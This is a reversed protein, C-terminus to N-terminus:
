WVPYFLCKPVCIPPNQDLNGSLLYRGKLLDNDKYKLSFSGGSVFLVSHPM